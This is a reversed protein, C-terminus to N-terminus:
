QPVARGNDYNNQEDALLASSSDNPHDIPALKVPPTVGDTAYFDREPENFYIQFIAFGLLVNLAVSALLVIVGWRYTM